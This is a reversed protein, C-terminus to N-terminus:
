ESRGLIGEICEIVMQGGCIDCLKVPGPAAVEIVHFVSRTSSGVAPLGEIAIRGNGRDGLVWFAIQRDCRKFSIIAVTDQNIDSGPCEWCVIAFCVGDIRPPDITELKFRSLRSAMIYRTLREIDM